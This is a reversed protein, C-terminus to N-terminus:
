QFFIQGVYSIFDFYPFRLKFSLTHGMSLNGNTGNQLKQLLRGLVDVVVGQDAQPRQRHGLPIEGLLLVAPEDCVVLRGALGHRVPISPLSLM